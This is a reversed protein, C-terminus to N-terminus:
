KVSQYIQQHSKYWQQWTDYRDRLVYYKAYNTNANDILDSLQTQDPDLPVLDESPEMLEAPADPWKMIIPSKSSACGVLCAIMAAIILQKM